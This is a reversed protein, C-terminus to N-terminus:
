NECEELKREKVECRLVQTKAVFDEVGRGDKRIMIMIASVLILIYQISEFVYVSGIYLNRGGFITFLLIITDFLIFNNITARLLLQNLSLEKKETPVVQIKMLKKGLTQGKNYFQFVVFYLIYIIITIITSLGNQRSIEYNIDLSQNLYTEADIKEEKLNKALEESELSLKELNTQNVVPLIAFSSIFLVIMIDLLFAVFRQIFLAKERYIEVEEKNKKM